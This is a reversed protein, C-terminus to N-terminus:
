AKVLHKPTSGQLAQIIAQACMRGMTERVEYTASGIHPLLVVNSLDKLGPNLAPEHEFVDLGAGGLKGDRLAKVLAQEDVVAGRATNILFAEPKMMALQKADFLHYTEPTLPCHLSLYDSESLLEPLEAWSCGIGELDPKRSRASYLVECGFGLRLTKAVQSGIKGAGFVGIKKGYLGRGLHFLPSWGQFSESRMIKEGEYFRRSLSLMLGLAVEATAQTLVGPTNAVLINRSSLTALDLNDTGAAFNAIIKLNSPLNQCLEQDLKDCLTVLLADCNKGIQKILENRSLPHKQSCAAIEADPFAAKLMELASLPIAQTIVIRFSM